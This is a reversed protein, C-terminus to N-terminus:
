GVLFHNQGCNNSRNILIRTIRMFSSMSPSQQWIKKKM